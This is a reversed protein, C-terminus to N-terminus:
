RSACECVKAQYSYTGMCAALEVIFAFIRFVHVGLFIDAQRRVGSPVPTSTRTFSQKKELLEPWLQENGPGM